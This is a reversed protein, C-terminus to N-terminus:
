QQQHHTDVPLRGVETRDVPQVLRESGAAPHTWWASIENAQAEAVPRVM